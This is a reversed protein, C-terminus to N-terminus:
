DLEGNYIMKLVIKKMQECETIIRYGNAYSCFGMLENDEKDTGIILVDSFKGINNYLMKDPNIDFAVGNQYDGLEILKFGSSM